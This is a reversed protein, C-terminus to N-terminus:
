IEFRIWGEGEYGFVFQKPHIMEALIETSDVIRPGSRHFYANGDAIYFCKNKLAKLAQFGPWQMVKAMENLTQLISFGCPMLIIVDPDALRIAEWDLIPSHKGAQTFVSQGGAIEVLEPVWNGALMLPDLGEICAVTPKQDAFKLKHRIIDLREQLIELLNEGAEKVQLQQATNRIDDFVDALNHPELSIIQVPKKLLNKLANEVEKLSIDGQIQTIIVEPNLQRIMEGDMSYISLADALIDEIQGNMERGQGSHVKNATCVPLTEVSKPYDCAPSRGVLNAELNLACVIETAAPLLSVIRLASM